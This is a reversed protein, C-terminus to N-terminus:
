RQVHKAIRAYLANFLFDPVQTAYQAAKHLALHSEKIVEHRESDSNLSKGIIREYASYSFPTSTSTVSLKNQMDRAYLSHARAVRERMAGFGREYLFVQSGGVRKAAADLAYIVAHANGFSSKLESPRVFRELEGKELSKFGRQVGSTFAFPYNCAVIHVELRYGANAMYDPLTAFEISDFACEFIINLKQEFAREFIKKSLDRIFENTHEYAHLTGLKIMEQYQPHKERYEPLYLRVYNKYLGSPLLQKELLYTKGSSQVGATVLISPTLEATIGAFLTTSIENFASTVQESTYTYTNTASM